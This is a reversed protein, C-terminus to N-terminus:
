RTEALGLLHIRFVVIDGESAKEMCIDENEVLGSHLFM